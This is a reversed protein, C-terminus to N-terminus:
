LLVALGLLLPQPLAHHSGGMPTHHAYCKALPVIVHRLSQVRVTHPLSTRVAWQMCWIHLNSYQHPALAM